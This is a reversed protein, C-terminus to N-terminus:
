PAATFLYSNSVNFDSNILNLFHQNPSDDFTPLLYSLLTPIPLPIEKRDAEIQSNSHLALQKHSSLDFSKAIACLTISSFDM